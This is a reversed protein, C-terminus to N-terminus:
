STQTYCMSFAKDSKAQTVTKPGELTLVLLLIAAPLSILLVSLIVLRNSNFM